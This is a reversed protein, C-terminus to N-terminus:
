SNPIVKKDELDFYWGTRQNLIAKLYKQQILTIDSQLSFAMTEALM